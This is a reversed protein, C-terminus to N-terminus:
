KKPFIQNNFAKRIKLKEIKDELVLLEKNLDKKVENSSSPLNIKKIVESIKSKVSSIEKDIYRSTINGGNKFFEIIESDKVLSIGKSTSVEYGNPLVELIVGRRSEDKWDKFEITKGINGGNAMKKPSILIKGIRDQVELTDISKKSRSDFADNSVENQINFPVKLEGLKKALSEYKESEKQHVAFWLEGLYSRVLPQNINGGTSMKNSKHKWGTTKEVNSGYEYKDSWNKLKYGESLLEQIANEFSIKSKFIKVGYFPSGDKNFTKGDFSSITYKAKGVNLTTYYKKENINGGQEFKIKNEILTEGNAGGLNNSFVAIDKVSSSSNQTVIMSLIDMIVEKKSSTIGWYGNNFQGDTVLKENYSESKPQKLGAEFEVIDINTSVVVDKGQYTAYVDMKFSNGWKRKEGNIIKPTKSIKYKSIIASWDLMPYKLGIEYQNSKTIEIFDDIRTDVYSIEYDFLGNIKNYAIEGDITVDFVSHVGLYILMIEKSDYGADLLKQVRSETVITMREKLNGWFPTIKNLDKAKNIIKLVIDSASENSSPKSINNKLYVGDLIENGSITIKDTGKKLTISLINRNSIYTTDKLQSQNTAFSDYDGNLLKKYVKEYYSLGEKDNSDKRSNILRKASEKMENLISITFKAGVDKSGLKVLNYGIPKSKKDFSFISTNGTTDLRIEGSDGNTSSGYNNMVTAFRKEDKQWVVDGANFETLDKDPTEQKVEKYFNLFTEEKTLLGSPNYKDLFYKSTERPIGKIESAKTYAEEFSSSSNVAEKFIDLNKFDIKSEITSKLNEIEKKAKSKINEPVLNSNVVKELKDIKSQNESTINGGMEFSETVYLVKNFTTSNKMQSELIDTAEEKSMAMIRKAVLINGSNTDYIVDFPSTFKSQNKNTTQYM